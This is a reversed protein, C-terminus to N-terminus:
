CFVYSIIGQSPLLYQKIRLFVPYMAMRNCSSLNLEIIMTSWCKYKTEARFGKLIGNHSWNWWLYDGNYEKPPYTFEHIVWGGCMCVHFLLITCHGVEVQYETLENFANMVQLTYKSVPIHSDMQSHFKLHFVANPLLIISNSDMITQTTLNNGPEPGLSRTLLYLSSM